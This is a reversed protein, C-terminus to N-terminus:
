AFRSKRKIRDDIDAAAEAATVFHNKQIDRFTSFSAVELNLMAYREVIKVIEGSIIDGVIEPRCCIAYISENQTM